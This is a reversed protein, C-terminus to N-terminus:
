RGNELKVPAGHPTARYAREWADRRAEIEDARLTSRALLAELARLVAGYYGETTDPTQPARLAAGLADAWDSADFAKARVLCDALGLAQAQWAEDFAPDGDRRRLPALPEPASM